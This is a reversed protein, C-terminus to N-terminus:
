AAEFSLATGNICHLIQGQVYLVHGLHSGCRRCHAEIRGDDENGFLVSDVLAHRFFVWGIDLNIKEDSLYTPLDCGKCLYTGPDATQTYRHSHKAETGGERLITYEAPTLRARWESDPYQVEYHFVDKESVQRPPPPTGTTDPQNPDPPRNDVGPLAVGDCAALSGVLGLSSSVLVSRRTVKFTM